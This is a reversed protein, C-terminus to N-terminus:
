SQSNAYCFTLLIKLRDKGSEGAEKPVAAESQKFTRVLEDIDEEETDQKKVLPKMRGDVEDGKDTSNVRETFSGSKEVKPPEARTQSSDPALFISLVLHFNM